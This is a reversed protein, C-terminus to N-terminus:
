ILYIMQLCDNEKQRMAIKEEETKDDYKLLHLVGHIIVRYLEQKFPTSFKTSNSIVTDVSIFFDGSILEGVVYDHTIIDTYYHHDFTKINLDLIYDDSCFVYTIDGLEMGELEVVREIWSSVLEEDIPIPIEHKYVFDIM